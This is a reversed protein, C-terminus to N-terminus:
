AFYIEHVILCLERSVVGMDEFLMILVCKKKNNALYILINYVNRYKIICKNSYIFRYYSM